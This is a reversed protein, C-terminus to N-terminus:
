WRKDGRAITGDRKELLGREVKMDKKKLRSILKKVGEV